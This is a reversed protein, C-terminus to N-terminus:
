RIGRRPRYHGAAGPNREYKADSYVDITTGDSLQEGAPLPFVGISRTGYNKSPPRFQEPVLKDKGTRDIYTSVVENAYVVVEYLPQPAIPREDVIGLSEGSAAILITQETAGADREVEQEVSKGPPITVEIGRSKPNRRDVLSVVLEDLHTNALRIIAPNLPENPVLQTVETPPPPPQPPFLGPGGPSPPLLAIVWPMPQWPGNSLRSIPEGQSDIPWGVYTNNASNYYALYQDMDAFPSRDYVFERRRPTNPDTVVILEQDTVDVLIPSQAAQAHELTFPEGLARPAVWVALNSALLAVKFLSQRGFHPNM